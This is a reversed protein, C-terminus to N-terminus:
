KKPPIIDGYTADRYVLFFGDKGCPVFYAYKDIEPPPAKRGEAPIGFVVYEPKGKDRTLGVVYYKDEAYIIKVFSSGRLARELEPVRPFKTFVSRLAPEIRGYYTERDDPLDERDGGETEDPRSSRNKEEEDDAAERRAGEAKEYVFTKRENEKGEKEYYNEEAIAFDDYGEYTGKKERSDRKEYEEALMNKFHIFDGEGGFFEMKGGEFVGLCFDNKLDAPLFCEGNEAEGFASVVGDTAGITGGRKIKVCIGGGKRIVEAALLPNKGKRDGSLVVNKKIFM